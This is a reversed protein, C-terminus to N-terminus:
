GPKLSGFVCCKMWLVFLMLVICHNKGYVASCGLLLSMRSPNLCKVCRHERHVTNWCCLGINGTLRMCGFSVTVTGFDCDPLKMSVKWILSPLSPWPLNVM